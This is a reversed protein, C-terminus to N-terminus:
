DGLRIKIEFRHDGIAPADYDAIPKEVCTMISLKSDQVNSEAFQKFVNITDKEARGKINSRDIMEEFNKFLVFTRKGTKDYIENSKEALDFIEYLSKLPMTKDFKVEVYNGPLLDKLKELCQWKKSSNGHLLINSFQDIKMGHKEAVLGSIVLNKFRELQEKEKISLDPISKYLKELIESSDKTIPSVSESSIANVILHLKQNAWDQLPDKTVAKEGEVVINPTLLNGGELKLLDSYNELHMFTEIGTANYLDQATKAKQELIKLAEKGTKAEIKEKILIRYPLHQIAETLDNLYNINAEWFYQKSGLLISVEKHGKAEMAKKILNGHFIFLDNSHDYKELKTDFFSANKLNLNMSNINQPKNFDDGLVFTFKNENKQLVNNFIDSYKKNETKTLDHIFDKENEINLFIRSKIKEQETYNSLKLVNEFFENKYQSNYKLKVTKGGVSNALFNTFKDTNNNSNKITILKAIDLNNSYKSVLELGTSAVFDVLKKQEPLELSKLIPEIDQISDSFGKELYINPSRKFNNRINQIFEKIQEENNKPKFKGKLLKFGIVGLGLVAAGAIAAKTYIEKKNKTNNTTNGSFSLTDNKAINKTNIKLPMKKQYFYQYKNKYPTTYLLNNTIM